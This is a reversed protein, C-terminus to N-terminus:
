HAVALAPADAPRAPRRMLATLLVFLGTIAACAAFVATFNGTADRVIGGLAPGIAASTSILQMVAYLELNPRRGFYDLLLMATAVYSFGLGIGMGVVFLGIGADGGMFGIGLVGATVAILSLTTLTRASAKEGTVGALLSAIAGVFAAASLVYAAGNESLGRELLHQAAFSHVTTNVLLFSTYAGVVVYYQPTALARRAQWGTPAIPMTPLDAPPARHRTVLAALASFLLAAAACLMWYPRWDGTLGSTLRFLLPGAVSGMGGSTFYFGLATSARTEFTASIVHVAPVTGAFTFGLGLLVTGVHYGLVGHTGALCAFGAALLVGGTLLTRSVGLRRIAVAPMLSSLGCALGLLTFGFGAEAWSWGLSGVMAPLVVGLANFTGAMLLFYLLSLAGLVAYRAPGHYTM